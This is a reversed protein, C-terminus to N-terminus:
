RNGREAPAVGSENRHRDLVAALSDEADDFLEDALRGLESAQEVLADREYGGTRAAALLSEAVRVYTRLAREYRVAVDALAPPVPIARVDAAVDNMAAVWGTAMRVLVEDVFAGGAIDAVGPRLGDAVVQGGDRLLPRLAEDYDTVARREAALTATAEPPAVESVTSSGGWRGTVVVVLVVVATVLSGAALGSGLTGLAAVNISRVRM